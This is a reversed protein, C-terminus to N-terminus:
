TTIAAKMTQQVEAVVPAGGGGEHAKPATPRFDKTANYLKLKVKPGVIGDVKM